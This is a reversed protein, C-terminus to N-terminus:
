GTEDPSILLPLDRGTLRSCLIHGVRASSAQNALTELVVSESGYQRHVRQMLQWMDKDFAARVALQAPVTILSLAAEAVPTRVGYDAVHQQAQYFVASDLAAWIAQRGQLSFQQRANVFMRTDVGGPRDALAYLQEFVPKDLAATLAQADDIRADRIFTRTADSAAGEQDVLQVARNFISRDGDSMHRVLTRSALTTISQVKSIAPQLAGTVALGVCELTFDFGPEYVPGEGEITEAHDAAVRGLLAAHMDTVIDM